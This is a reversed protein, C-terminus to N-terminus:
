RTQLRARASSNNAAGKLDLTGQGFDRGVGETIQQGNPHCEVSTYPGGFLWASARSM